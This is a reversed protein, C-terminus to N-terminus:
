ATGTSVVAVTSTRFSWYCNLVPMAEPSPLSLRIIACGTSMPRATDQGYKLAGRVTLGTDPQNPFGTPGAAATWTWRSM